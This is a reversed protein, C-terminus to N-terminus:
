NPITSIYLQFYFFQFLYKIVRSQGVGGDGGQLGLETKIMNFCLLFQQIM